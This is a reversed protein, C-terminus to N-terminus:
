IPSSIKRNPKVHPGLGKKASENKKSQEEKLIKEMGKRPFCCYSSRAASPTPLPAALSWTDTTVDYCEVSSTALGSGSWGGCVFIKKHLVAIGAQYRPASMSAKFDWSNTDLNLGECTRMFTNGHYGGIVYITNDLVAAM